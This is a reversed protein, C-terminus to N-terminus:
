PVPLNYYTNSKKFAERQAKPIVIVVSIITTTLASPSLLMADAYHKSPKRYISFGNTIRIGSQDVQNTRLSFLTRDGESDHRERWGVVPKGKYKTRYYQLVQQYSQSCSVTYQVDTEYMNLSISEVHSGPPFYVVPRVAYGFIKSLTLDRASHHAPSSAQTLSGTSLPLVLLAFILNIGRYAGGWKSAM